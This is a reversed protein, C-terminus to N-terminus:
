QAETMAQDFGAIEAETPHNKEIWTKRIASLKKAKSEFDLMGIELNKLPGTWQQYTSMFGKVDEPKKYTPKPYSRGLADKGITVTNESEKQTKTAAQRHREASAELAKARSELVKKRSPTLQHDNDIQARLRNAREQNYRAASERVKVDPQTIAETRNAKTTNVDQKTNETEIKSVNLEGRKTVEDARAAILARKEEATPTFEREQTTHLDALSGQNRAKEGETDTKAALLAPSHGTIYEMLKMVTPDNPNKMFQQIAFAHHGGPLSGPSQNFKIDGTVPDQVLYAGHALATIHPNQLSRRLQLEELAQKQMQQRLQLGQVFGAMGGNMGGALAQGTEAAGSDFFNGM